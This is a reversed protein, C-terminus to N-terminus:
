LQLDSALLFFYFVYSFPGCCFNQLTAFNRLMSNECTAFNAEKWQEDKMGNNVKGAKQRKSMKTVNKQKKM